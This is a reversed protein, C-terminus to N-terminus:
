EIRPMAAMPTTPPALALYSDLAATMRDLVNLSAVFSGSLRDGLPQAQSDYEAIAHDLLPIWRKITQVKEEAEHLKRQAERVTEKQETDSVASSNTQMLQRRHLETRANSIKEQWRKVQAQWYTLQDRQLWNQAQRIEMDTSSLGNRADEAFNIMAIKFARIADVSSVK